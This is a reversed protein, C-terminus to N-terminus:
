APDKAMVLFRHTCRLAIEDTHTDRLLTEVAVIDFARRAGQRTMVDVVRASLRYAQGTKIRTGIEYEQDGLMITDAWWDAGLLDAMNVFRNALLATVPLYVDPIEADASDVEVDSIYRRIVALFAKVEELTIQVTVPTMEKGVLHQRSRMLGTM